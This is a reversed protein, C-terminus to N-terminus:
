DCRPRSAASAPTDSPLIGRLYAYNDQCLMAQSGHLLAREAFPRDSGADMLRNARQGTNHFVTKSGGAFALGLAHGLEHAATTAILAAVAEAACRVKELRAGSRIPCRAPTLPALADAEQSSIAVGHNPRFEDFLADFLPDALPLAAIGEPPHQSFGLISSLFVGGVEGTPTPEAGLRENFHRNGLDKGESPDLGLLGRGSPDEAQVDIQVYLGFHEPEAHTFEIGLGAYPAKALQTAREAIWAAARALGLRQLGRTWGGVFRLRVLQKAALVVLRSQSPAVLWAATGRPGSGVARRVRWQGTIELPVATRLDIGSRREFHEDLLLRLRAGGWCRASLEWGVPRRDLPSEVTGSFACSYQEGPECSQLDFDLYQGFRVSDNILLVTAPRREAACHCM